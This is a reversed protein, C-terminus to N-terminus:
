SYDLKIALVLAVMAMLFFLLYLPGAFRIWKNFPVKAIALIAMMVYGTPIVMNTFGDGMQFALVAVQRNIGAIDSLPAMIPMSVLAQSSGGPIFFNIVSQTLLMGIASLEAGLGETIGSMFYVLTHLIKADSLLVQIATAIGIIIVLNALEAMGKIFLNALEGWSNKSIFSILITLGLFIASLETTYWAHQMSGWVLLVFASFSLGIVVLHRTSMPIFKYDFEVTQATQDAVLSNAPDQRVKKAYRWIYIFGVLFFPVFIILRYYLGSLPPLGAVNQAIVVTFPNIAAAGYGVAGGVIIIAVATVTDMKLRNCMLVFIGVLAIKEEGMGYTSAGIAFVLMSLFILVGPRDSFKDLLWTITADITGTSRIVELAGGLILVFFVVGQIKALGRPIATLVAWIPLNINKELFQFSGPVVVESGSESQQVEYTGSPVVWTMCYALLLLSFLLIVTNPLKM